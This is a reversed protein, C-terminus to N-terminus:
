AGALFADFTVTGRPAGADTLGGARLARSAPVPVLVARSGTAARWRRALERASVIEPGALPVLALAPAAEAADALARGAERADVPQLPAGLAPVVGLRAGKALLGAVLQHFQTARVITWPVGGERIVAEQALKLKYYFGGVRDIGVISVGVHHAVGAAAEARLLRETGEVLVKRTGQAADIVVDVGALARELGEGTALDVRYEPARRSLVRVTHGRAELERAAAAGVTGTGGVIAIKM